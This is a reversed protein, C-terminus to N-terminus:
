SVPARSPRPPLPRPVMKLRARKSPPALADRPSVTLGDEIARRVLHETYGNEPYARGAPGTDRVLRKLTHPPAAGKGAEIRGMGGGVGYDFAIVREEMGQFDSHRAVEPTLFEHRVPVARNLAARSCRSDRLPSYVSLILQRM